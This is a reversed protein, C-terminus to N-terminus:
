FGSSGAKKARGVIEHVETHTPAPVKEAMEIEVTDPMGGAQRRLLRITDTLARELQDLRMERGSLFISGDDQVLVKLATSRKLLADPPAHYEGRPAEVVQWYLQRDSQVSMRVRGTDGTFYNRFITELVHGEPRAATFAPTERGPEGERCDIKAGGRVVACYSGELSDGREVVTLRFTSEESNKVWEWNGAFPSLPTETAVPAGPPAPAAPPTTPTTQCAALLPVLWFLSRATMDTKKSFVPGKPCLEPCNAKPRTRGPPDPRFSIFIRGFGVYLFVFRM